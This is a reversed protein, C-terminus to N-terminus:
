CQYAHMYTNDYRVRMAPVDSPVKFTLVSEPDIAACMIRVLWVVILDFVPGICIEMGFSSLVVMTTTLAVVHRM